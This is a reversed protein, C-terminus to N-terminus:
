EPFKEDLIAKGVIVMVTLVGGGLIGFTLHLLVDYYAAVGVIGFIVLSILVALIWNRM